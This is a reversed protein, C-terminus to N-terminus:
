AIVMLNQTKKQSWHSAFIIRSLGLSFLYIKSNLRSTAKNYISINNNINGTTIGKRLHNSYFIEKLVNNEANFNNDDDGRVFVSIFLV